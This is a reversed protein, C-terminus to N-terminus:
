VPSHTTHTRESPANADKIDTTAEAAVCECLTPNNITRAASRVLKSKILLVALENYLVCHNHKNDISHKCQACTACDGEFSYIHTTLRKKLM